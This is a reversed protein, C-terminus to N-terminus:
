PLADTDSHNASDGSARACPRTQVSDVHITMLNIVYQGPDGYILVLVGSALALELAAKVAVKRVGIM